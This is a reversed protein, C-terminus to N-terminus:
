PRLSSERRPDFLETVDHVEFGDLLADFGHSLKMALEDPLLPLVALLAIERGDDAHITRFEEPFRIPPALMTACFETGAAFPEAPDGHPVSHWMGLWTEYEHPLRALIKLQRIPWYNSEDVWSAEDVPWSPPLLIMLEVFEPVQGRLSEPITMPRDSMGSTALTHFPREPGAPVLHVDVHVLDSVIEHFVIEVPGVFRALHRDVAEVTQSCGAGAPVFDRVRWQHRLIPAANPPMETM